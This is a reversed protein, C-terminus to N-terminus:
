PHVQPASAERCAGLDDILKRLDDLGPGYALATNLTARAAEADGTICQVRALNKALGAVDQNRNFARQLMDASEKLKGQRALLIALNSLATLDDPDLALVRRVPPHVGNLKIQSFARIM